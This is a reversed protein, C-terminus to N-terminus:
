FQGNCLLFFVQLNFRPIGWIKNVNKVLFKVFQPDGKKSIEGKFEDRVQFTVFNVFNVFSWM